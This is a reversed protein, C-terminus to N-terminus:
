TKRPGLPRTALELGQFRQRCFQSVTKLGLISKLKSFNRVMLNQLRFIFKLDGTYNQFKVDSCDLLLLNKVEKMANEHVRTLPNGNL